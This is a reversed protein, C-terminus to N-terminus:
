ARCSVFEAKGGILKPPDGVSINFGSDTATVRLQLSAKIRRDIEQYEARKRRAIGHAEYLGRQMLFGGRILAAKGSAIGSPLPYDTGPKGVELTMFQPTLVM